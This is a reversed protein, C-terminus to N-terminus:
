IDQNQPKRFLCKKYRVANLLRLKITSYNDKVFYLATLWLAPYYLDYIVGTSLYMIVNLVLIVTGFGLGAVILNLIKSKGLKGPLLRVPDCILMLTLFAYVVFFIGLWLLDIIHRNQELAIVANILIVPGSVTGTYTDHDDGGSYDGIVVTKGAVLGALENPSYVDLLDAGLNYYTKEGEADYGSEIRYPMWLALTGSAPRGRDSPFLGNLRVDCNNRQNYAALAMDKVDGHDYRYKVFNGEGFSINYESSALKDPALADEADEDENASVLIRPMANITAFLASDAEGADAKFFHVDVIVSKYDADEIAKLFQALRSRAVVPREGVPIGFEDVATVMERDYGINIPFFDDAGGTTSETGEGTIRDAYIRRTMDLQKMLTGTGNKDTSLTNGMLTLLVLLLANVCVAAGAWINRVSRKVDCIYHFKGWGLVDCGILCYEM